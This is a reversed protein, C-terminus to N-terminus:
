LLNTEFQSTPYFIPWLLKLDEDGFITPTNSTYYHHLSPSTTGQLIGRLNNFATHLPELVQEEFNTSDWQSPPSYPTPAPIPPPPKCFLAM